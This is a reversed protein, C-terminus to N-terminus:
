NRWIRLLSTSLFGLGIAFLLNALLLSINTDTFGWYVWLIQGITLTIFGLPILIDSLIQTRKKAKSFTTIYINYIIYALIGLNISYMYIGITTRWVSLVTTTTFSLFFVLSVSLVGVLIFIFTIIRRISLNRNRFYYSLAIFAFAATQLIAQILFTTHYIIATQGFLRNLLVFAISIELLIFGIMFTLLFTEKTIRYAKVTSFLITGVLFITAIQFIMFVDSYPLFETM